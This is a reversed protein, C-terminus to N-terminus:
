QLMHEYLVKEDGTFNWNKEDWIDDKVSAWRAPLFTNGNNKSTEWAESMIIIQDHTYKENNDVPKGTFPNKPNEILGQLALTPVDANTMFTNSSTFSRNNFDKVMLLPFYSEVDVSSGAGDDMMLSDLQGIGYGHDSALIIRTNDYVGNERLYDFWKGLQIMAAMNAHYHATQTHTEIRLQKGDIILSVPNKKDYGSNDVNDAVVYEPKQLVIPDHTTDNVMVMFSNNNKSTIKTMSPLNCLVRYNDSFVSQSSGTFRRHGYYGDDYILKQLLVPMAKMVSFCFFNNLRGEIRTQVSKLNSFKGKTIFKNIQQYEDYISLDPTWQYNAYAPDCVTVDYGSKNFIVPLVKLAENHKDVLKESSRKNMEVPTYEYGGFVAPMGFNTYGGHSIVNSYYTFGSFKEKLEPKEHFLYPIYEGMGRDLILVVVNKGTKSLSFMPTKDNARFIESAKTVSERSTIINFASMCSVALAMVTLMRVIMRKQKKVFFSLGIAILLVTALNILKESLPFSMGSDYQLTNSLNGLNRGFFMYDALAVGSGIVALRNFVTKWAPSALWYFVQLWVLFFGAALCFSNVIYWVPNYFYTAELYEQPSAAIYASPILVGLFVALFVSGTLFMRRDPVPKKIKLVHNRHNGLWYLLYHFCYPLLLMLGVLIIFARRKISLNDFILVGWIVLLLGCLAAFNRLVKKPDKLKYFINKVLSFVNNLTWYFVLGSPSSYLIVLFILAMGYVQLKDKLAFGKLYLAGSCCNVVTMIIPLVNVTQGGGIVFLGDPAALDPIPGFSEGILIELTSLFQYAAMFFPIELLLSVSGKLSDTPKYNNQRYYTQLIMMRENGSFTKKIHSVGDRLRSETDRAKAQMADARRYLPLVLINMVLSLGIIALGARENTLRYAYEYIIEFVLKLPGIFLSEIISFLSM